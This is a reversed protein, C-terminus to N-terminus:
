SEFHLEESESGNNAESGGRGASRRRGVRSRLGVAGLADAEHNVNTVGLGVELGRDVLGPQAGETHTGTDIGNGLVLVM